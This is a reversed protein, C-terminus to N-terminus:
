PQGMNDLKAWRLFDVFYLHLFSQFQVPFNFSRFSIIVWLRQESQDNSQEALFFYLVHTNLKFKTKM